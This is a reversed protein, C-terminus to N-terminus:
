FHETRNSLGGDLQLRRQRTASLRGRTRHLDGIHHTSHEFKNPRAVLAVRGPTFWRGDVLNSRQEADRSTEDNPEPGAEHPFGLLAASGGTPERARGRRQY